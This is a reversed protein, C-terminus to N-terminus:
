IMAMWYILDIVECVDIQKNEYEDIYGYFKSKPGEPDQRAYAQLLNCCADVIDVAYMAAVKSPDHFAQCSMLVLAWNRFSEWGSCPPTRLAITERKRTCEQATCNILNAEQCVDSLAWLFGRPEPAVPYVRYHEHTANDCPRDGDSEKQKLQRLLSNNPNQPPKINDGESEKEGNKHLDKWFAYADSLSAVPAGNTSM